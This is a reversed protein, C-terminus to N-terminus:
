DDTTWAIWRGDPSIATLQPWRVRELQSLVAELPADAPPVPSAPSDAWGAVPIGVCCLAGWAAARRLRTVLFREVFGNEGLKLVGSFCRIAIRLPTLFPSFLTGINWSKEM